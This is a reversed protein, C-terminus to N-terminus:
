ALLQLSIPTNRPVFIGGFAGSFLMQPAFPNTLARTNNRERAFYFCKCTLYIQSISCLQINFARVREATTTQLLDIFTKLRVNGLYMQNHGMGGQTEKGCMMM